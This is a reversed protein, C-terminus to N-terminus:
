VPIFLNGALFLLLIMIFHLVISPYINNTKWKISSFGLSIIAMVTSQPGSFGFSHLYVGFSIGILFIGWFANIFQLFLELLIGRWLFEYFFAHFSCYLLAWLIKSSSWPFTIPLFFMVSMTLTIVVFVNFNNSMSLWNLKKFGHNVKMKFMKQIYYLAVIPVLHLSEGLLIVVKSPLNLNEIVRYGYLIMLYCFYFANLSWVLMRSKETSFCPIAFLQLIIVILVIKYFRLEYALLVIPFLFIFFNIFLHNNKSLSISM